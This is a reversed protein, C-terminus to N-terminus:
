RYFDGIITKELKENLRQDKETPNGVTAVGTRHFRIYHSVSARKKFATLALLTIFPVRAKNEGCRHEIVWM